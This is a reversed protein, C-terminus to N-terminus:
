GGTGQAIPMHVETLATSGSTSSRKLLMFSYVNEKEKLGIITYVIQNIFAKNLM